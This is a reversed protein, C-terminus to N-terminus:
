IDRSPTERRVRREDALDIVRHQGTARSAAAALMEIITDVGTGKDIFLDAGAAMARAEVDRDPDASMLVVVAKPAAARYMPVATIGDLRPMQVDSVILNPQLRNAAAAGDYGDRAEGIIEFGPESELLTVLLERHAGDDDIVLTRIM